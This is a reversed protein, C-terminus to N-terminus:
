EAESRLWAMRAVVVAFLLPWIEAVSIADLGGIRVPIRWAPIRLLEPTLGLVCAGIITGTPSHRRGVLAMVFVLIAVDLGFSSPAVYQKFVVYLCGAGAALIGSLVFLNLRIKRVPLGLVAAVQVDHRITDLVASLGSRRFTYVLVGSIVTWAVCIGAVALLRAQGSVSPLISVGIGSAGGLGHVMEIGRRLMDVFLLTSVLVADGELRVMILGILAALAAGTVLAAGFGVALGSWTIAGPVGMMIWVALGSYAGAAAFGAHALSLIGARILIHASLALVVYYACFFVYSPLLDLM